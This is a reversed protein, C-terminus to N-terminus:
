LSLAVITALLTDCSVGQGTPLQAAIYACHAAPESSTSTPPFPFLYYRHSAREVTLDTFCEQLHPREPLAAM